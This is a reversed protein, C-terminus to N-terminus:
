RVWYKEGERGFLKENGLNILITAKKVQRVKAVEQLVEDRTLSKKGLINKLVEKVTGQAYGWEKLAYVGRGILVFHEHKILENHVTQIHAKRPSLKYEDIFLAIQSFHLPKKKERLVSYIRERTGKPNIEKWDSLGWKEFKNKEVGALVAFYNAIEERSFESKQDIIKEVLDSESFPKGEKKLIEKAIAAVQRVRASIKSGVTWSKKIDESEAIKIEDFCARLFGAANAERWDNGGLIKLIDAEGIIGSNAEITFIIKEKAIIVATDNRKQAIKKFADTVIQRVRERTIGYEGGIKELTQPKEQSLAFRKKVIEQSRKPLIALLENAV